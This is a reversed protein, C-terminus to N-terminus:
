KEGGAEGLVLECPLPPTRECYTLGELLSEGSSMPVGSAEHAENDAGERDQEKATQRNSYKHRKSIHGGLACGKAFVEGCMPCEYSPRESNRNMRSRMEPTIRARLFMIEQQIVQLYSQMTHRRGGRFIWLSQPPLAQLASEQKRSM